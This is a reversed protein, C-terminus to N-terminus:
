NINANVLQSRRNQPKREKRKLKKNASRRKKELEDRMKIEMDLLQNNIKQRESPELGAVSLKDQLLQMEADQMEKHYDDQSM